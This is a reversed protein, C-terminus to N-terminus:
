GHAARTTQEAADAEPAQRLLGTQADIYIHYAAVEADIRAGDWGLLLGMTEAAGRAATRGGRRDWLSLRARRALLDELTLAMEERVAHAVEGRTLGSDPACRRALAPDVAM